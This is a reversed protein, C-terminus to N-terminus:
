YLLVILEEYSLGFQDQSWNKVTPHEPKLVACRASNEYRPLTYSNQGDCFSSIWAKDLNLQIEKIITNGIKSFWQSKNMFNPKLPYTKTKKFQAQHAYTQHLQEASLESATINYQQIVGSVTLNHSVSELHSQGKVQVTKEVSSVKLLKKKIIKPNKKDKILEYVENKTPYSFSFIHSTTRKKYKINGKLMLYLPEKAQTSFWPHQAIKQELTQSYTEKNIGIQQSIALLSTNFIPQTFRSPDKSLSYNITKEVNSCYAQWINFYYYSNPNLESKMKKCQYQGLRMMKPRLRKITESNYGADIIHNYQKLYYNFRNYNQDKSLRSLEKELWHSSFKIEEDITSKVASDARIKWQTMQELSENLKKAAKIDLKSQRFMRVEILNDGVLRSRAFTLKGAIEEDDPSEQYAKEYFFVAQSYQEAYMM